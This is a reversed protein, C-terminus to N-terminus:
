GASPFFRKLALFWREFAHYSVLALWPVVVLGAGLGGAGVAQWLDLGAREPEPVEPGGSREDIEVGVIADGGDDSGPGSTTAWLRRPRAVCALEPRM